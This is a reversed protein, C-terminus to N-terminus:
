AEQQSLKKLEEELKKTAKAAERAKEVAVRAEEARKQKQLLRQVHQEEKMRLFHVLLTVNNPWTGTGKCAVLLLPKAHM